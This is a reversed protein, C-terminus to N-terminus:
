HDLTSVARASSWSKTGLVWKTACLWRYSWNRVDEKPKWLCRCVHPVCLSVCAYVYM